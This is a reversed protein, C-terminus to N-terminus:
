YQLRCESQILYLSKTKSTLASVIMGKVRVICQRITYAVGHSGDLINHDTFGSIMGHGIHYFLHSTPRCSFPKKATTISILGIVIINLM